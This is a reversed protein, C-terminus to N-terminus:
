CTQFVYSTLQTATCVKGVCINFILCDDAAHFLIRKSDTAHFSLPDGRETPHEKTVFQKWTEGQDFTIWHKRRGGLAVAVKNDYPHPYVAVVEDNTADVKDWKEGANTSRWINHHQPDLAVVTESDDFYFLNVPPAPFKHKSIEPGSTDKASTGRLSLSLAVLIGLLRM